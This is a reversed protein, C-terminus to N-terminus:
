FLSFIILRSKCEMKGKAVVLFYIHKKTVFAIFLYKSSNINPQM